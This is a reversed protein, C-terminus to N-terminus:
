DLDKLLWEHYEALLGITLINSIVGIHNGININGDNDIQLPNEKSYNGANEAIETLKDESLTAIFDGFNKESLKM